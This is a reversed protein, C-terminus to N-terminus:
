WSITGSRLTYTGSWGISLTNGSITYTGYDSGNLFLRNNNTTHWEGTGRIRWINNWSDFLVDRYTGNSNFVFGQSNNSTGSAWVNGSNILRNDRQITHLNPEVM